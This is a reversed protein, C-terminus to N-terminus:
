RMGGIRAMQELVADKHKQMTPWLIAYKKGHALELYVLYRVSGSLTITIVSGHRECTGTIGGRAHGTHDRWPASAKADAEMRKAATRAATEQAFLRRRDMEALQRYLGGADMQFGM